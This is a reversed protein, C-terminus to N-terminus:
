TMRNKLADIFNLRHIKEYTAFISIAIFIVTLLITKMHSIPTAIMEFTYLDNNFATGMGTLMSQGLPIGIIIGIVSILLTERTIMKFIEKKYFGMVRMSSFELQRENITMIGSNYVIAFGLIASFVLIVSVSYITYDMFEMFSDRIDQLSQVSAIIHYDELLDKVNEDSNIMVSNITGKDVFNNQMYNINAYMNIGLTQKIIDKVVVTTDDQGPIFTKLHITDGIQYGFYNSISETILVGDDPVDINKGQKNIFHYMESASKLGIMSVIKDRSGQEIEFPIELKGEIVEANTVQGIEFVDTESVFTKFNVVYDMKQFDEFQSIFISSYSDTLSIPILTLSYTMAIGLMTFLLRKKNRLASRIVSKWDFRIRNWVADWKELWIKKGLKPPEPRMSEAPQIKLISRSGWFGAALTFATSLLVANVAFLPYFVVTLMPINFFNDVYMQAMWGSGQFGLIIGLISGIFGILVTLKSYHAIITGNSYGMAKLVGIMTRDNKVLRNVMFILIIAAVALFFTPIYTVTKRGSEIEETLMRNSLQNKKETLSAIGLNDYEEDIIDLINAEDVNEEVTFLAQNYQSKMDFASQAFTETVYIVGYKSADPLLTQESEILYIFEPSNVINKITMKFKKGYIVISVEDGVSYGRAKAFQKVMFIERNSDLSQSGSDFFLRNIGDEKPVSIMKARVNEDRIDFQVEGIVRGEIDKIGDIEGINKIGSESVIGFDVYGDAFNTIDYYEDLTVDLNNLAMGMAIYSMLGIVIVMTIAIYQTKSSRLVRLARRDLKKVVM